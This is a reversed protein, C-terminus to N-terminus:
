AARRMGFGGRAPRNPFRHTEALTWVDGAEITEGTLEELANIVRLVTVINSRFYSNAIRSVYTKKMGAARQFDSRSLGHKLLIEDLHCRVHLRTM